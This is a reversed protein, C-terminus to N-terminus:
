RATDEEKLKDDDVGSVRSTVAERELVHLGDDLEAVLVLDQEHGILNVLGVNESLGLGEVREFLDKSGQRGFNGLVDREDREVGDGLAVRALAASPSAEKLKDVNVRFNEILDVLHARDSQARRNRTLDADVAQDSWWLLVALTVGEPELLSLTDLVRKPVSTKEHSLAEVLKFAHRALLSLYM